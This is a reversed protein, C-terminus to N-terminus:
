IAIFTDYIAFVFKLLNKVQIIDSAILVPHEAERFSKICVIEKRLNFLELIKWFQLM